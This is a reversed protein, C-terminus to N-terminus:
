DATSCTSNDNLVISNDSCIVYRSCTMDITSTLTDVRMLYCIRILAISGLRAAHDTTITPFIKSIFISVKLKNLGQGQSARGVHSNTFIGRDSTGDKTATLTTKDIMISFYINLTAGHLTTGKAASTAKSCKGFSSAHTSIGLHSDTTTSNLAVDIAATVQTIHTCDVLCVM